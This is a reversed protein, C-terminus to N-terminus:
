GLAFKGFEYTFIFDNALNILSFVNVLINNLAKDKLDCKLTGTKFKRVALNYEDFVNKTNLWRQNDIFITRFNHNICFPDRVRM